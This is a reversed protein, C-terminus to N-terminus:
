AIDPLVKWPPPISWYPRWDETVLKEIDQTPTPALGNASPSSWAAAIHFGWPSMPSRSVQSILSGNRKRPAPTLGEVAPGPFNRPPEPHSLRRRQQPVGKKSTWFMPLPFTVM